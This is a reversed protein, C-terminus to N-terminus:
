DRTQKICFPLNKFSERIDKLEEETPHRYYYTEPDIIAIQLCNGCENKNLYNIVERETQPNNIIEILESKDVVIINKNKKIGFRYTGEIEWMYFTKGWGCHLDKECDSIDFTLTANVGGDTSFSNIYYCENEILVAEWFYSDYDISYKVSDGYFDYDHPVMGSSILEVNAKGNVIEKVNILVEYGQHLEIKIVEGETVEIDQTTVKQDLEPFHIAYQYYTVRLTHKDNEMKSNTNCIAIKKNCKLLM